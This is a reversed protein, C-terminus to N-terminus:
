IFMYVPSLPFQSWNIIKMAGCFLVVFHMWIRCSLFVIYSTVIYFALINKNRIVNYPPVVYNQHVKLLFMLHLMSCVFLYLTTLTIIVWSVFRSKHNDEIHSCLHLWLGKMIISKTSWINIRNSQICYIFSIIIVILNCNKCM